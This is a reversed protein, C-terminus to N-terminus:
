NQEERLFKRNLEHLEDKEADTIWGAGYWSVINRINETYARETSYTKYRIEMQYRFFDFLATEKASKVVM